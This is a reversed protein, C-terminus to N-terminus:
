RLRRTRAFERDFARDGKASPQAPKGVAKPNPTLSVKAGTLTPDDVNVTRADPTQAQAWADIAADLRAYADDLPAGYADPLALTVAVRQGLSAMRIMTALRAYWQGVRGLPVDYIDVSYIYAGRRRWYTTIKNAEDTELPARPM